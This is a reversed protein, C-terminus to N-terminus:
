KRVPKPDLNAKLEEESVSSQVGEAPVEMKATWLLANLILKRFNDSGWNKHAHGGTFGVGRGGDPREVAWMLIEEQGKDAVIHPYPGRPSATKGQRDEDSPRAALIPAVGKMGPRFRINFYWEDRITFPKVGNTIPHKPLSKFDADWHPNTSFGTEYYGGIWDLLEPGGKDKPVEVAYHACLLGVGRKMMEGMRQLHDEQIVPHRAGGDMFLMIADAQDFATPDKPWSGLYVSAQAGLVKDLCTKLLLSGANFEHDGPAHSPTGAVLVIRKTGESKLRKLQIAKFQVLMPPGAHLQLALIGSSARKGPEEDTVESTIRGNIMHVLHNGRAIVLYENWDENKIAAQIEDSKGVSGTVTVKGDAGVVTKEGRKALIGRGKEEYVIGSFMKGAEFDAQYGGAVWNGLDKSRYQIGSNGGVIRYSLRLEFDEVTGNRWILFTNGQTPNESTTQGTIAGDRVSWFKPNGDWGSLDRGNFLSEFGASDQAAIGSPILVILVMAFFRM